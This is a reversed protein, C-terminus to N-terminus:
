QVITVDYEVTEKRCRPKIYRRETIDLQLPVADRYFAQPDYSVFRLRPLDNCRTDFGDPIIDNKRLEALVSNFNWSEKATGDEKQMVFDTNYVLVAFIGNGGASRCVAAIHPCAALQNWIVAYQEPDTLHDYDLVLYGSQRGEGRRVLPLDYEVSLGPVLAPLMKKTGEIDGSNRVAEVQHRWTGHECGRIFDAMTMPVGHREMASCIFTHVKM